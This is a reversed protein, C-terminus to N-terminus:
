RTAKRRPYEDGRNYESLKVPSGCVHEITGQPTQISLSAQEKDSPLKCSAPVEPGYYDLVVGTTCGTALMMIALASMILLSPRM